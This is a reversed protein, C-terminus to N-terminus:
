LPKSFVTSRKVVQFGCAKYLRNAGSPNASDVGLASETMGEAKQAQLSRAILARALGQKRWARSVGIGETYGRQRQFKENEARDIFTLVQGVIRDTSDEWAIQWLDPQFHSKRNLWVQYSEETFESVGWCDQFTEYATEWIRRYHEPLAARVSVGVPLPFSPIDDLHPRVMQEFYRIPQYGFKELLHLKGTQAQTTVAQFEKAIEAPHEAAMRYFHQEIWHLMATGIGKHRWHPDLFGIHSYRRGLDLDDWWYGRLYGIVRGDIEAFIMDQEPVCNELHAYDQILDALTKAIEIEDAEISAIFVALMKPFDETGRFHRFCLGAIKPFNPIAITNELMM